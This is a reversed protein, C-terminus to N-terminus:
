VMIAVLLPALVSVFVASLIMAITSVSGEELSNELARSTGIAHSASGLAVGRGVTHKLQFVKFAVTSIMAGFIGAIMVFVAALSSLGTLTQSIDMAVPTTVSKPTLSFIITEEFGFSKAMFVGTTVGIIAGIFTGCVIPIALRKLIYKNQYLPYALSVVAPGLLMDIWKGGIMYTDYSIDGILLAAIVLFTAVAVPLLLPTYFRKYLWTAVLYAAVTGGIAFLMVWVDHM